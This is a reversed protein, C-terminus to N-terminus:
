DVNLHINASVGDGDCLDVMFLLNEGVVWEM